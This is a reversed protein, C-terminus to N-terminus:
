HAVAYTPVVITAFDQGNYVSKKLGGILQASIGNKRGYNSKEEQWDFMEGTDNSKGGGVAYCASQAGCFIARRVSTQAAATASHVGYPVRSSTHIIVNRYVGLAGNFLPNDKFKGGQLAARQIDYFTKNPAGSENMLNYEQYPHIFLVWYEEGEVKIPRIRPSLTKAMELFKDLFVTKFVATPDGQVAQDTALANPRWIHNADPAIAAQMGTYRSDTEATYGAIQNFFWTDLREGWWQKLGYMADERFSMVVRKESMKGGSRFAQSLADIVISDNYYTLDGETGSQINDGQIGPGTPVMLLGMTIKDGADKALDEKIQIMSDPGKGMFRKVYTEFITEHALQKSWAKRTLADGTAFQWDM